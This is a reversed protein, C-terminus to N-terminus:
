ALCKCLLEVDGDRLAQTEGERDTRTFLVTGFIDVPYGNMSVTFSYPLGNVRGEDNCWADIGVQALFDVSFHEIYGGVAKQMGKLKDEEDIEVVKLGDSQNFTAAKM